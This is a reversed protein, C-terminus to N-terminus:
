DNFEDKWAMELNCCLVVVNEEKVRKKGEANLGQAYRKARTRRMCERVQARRKDRFLDTQVPDSKKIWGNAIGYAILTKPNPIM